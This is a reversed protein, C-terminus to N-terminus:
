KNRPEQKTLSSKQHYRNKVKIMYVTYVREVFYIDRVDIDFVM